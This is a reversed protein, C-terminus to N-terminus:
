KVYLPYNVWRVWASMDVEPSLSGLPAVWLDDKIQTWMVTVDGPLRMTGSEETM